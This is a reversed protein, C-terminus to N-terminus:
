KSKDETLTIYYTDGHFDELDVEINPIIINDEEEMFYLYGGNNFYLYNIHYVLACIDREEREGTIYNIKEQYGTEDKTRQIQAPLTYKKRNQVTNPQRSMIVLYNEIYEEKEYIDGIQTTEYGFLPPWHPLSLAFTVSWCVVFIKSIACFDWICIKVAFIMSMVVTIYFCFEAVLRILFYLNDRLGYKPFRLICIYGILAFSILCVSLATKAHRSLSGWKKVILEKTKANM